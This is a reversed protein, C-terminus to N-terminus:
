AFWGCRLFAPRLAALGTLSLAATFARRTIIL